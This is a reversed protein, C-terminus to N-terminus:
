KGGAVKHVIGLTICEASILWNKPTAPLEYVRMRWKVATNWSEGTCLGSAIAMQRLTQYRRRYEENTPRGKKAIPRIEVMTAAEAAIM